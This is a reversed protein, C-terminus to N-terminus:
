DPERSGLGSRVVRPLARGQHDALQGAPDVADGTASAGGRDGRGLVLFQLRRLQPGTGPLTEM